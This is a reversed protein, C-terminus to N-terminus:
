KSPGKEINRRLKQILKSLSQKEKHTLVGFVDSILATQRPWTENYVRRGERTPRVFYQRRDSNSQKRSVYGSTELATILGTVTARTVRTAKAIEALSVGRRGANELIFYMTSTRAISLTSSTVHNELFVTLDRATRMLENFVFVADVDFLAGDESIEVLEQESPFKYEKHKSEIISGWQRGIPSM